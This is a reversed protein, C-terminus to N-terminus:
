LVAAQSRVSTLEAEHAKAAADAKAQTAQVAFDLERQASIKLQELASEARVKDAIAQDFAATRTELEAIRAADTRSKARMWLFIILAGLIFGAIGGVIAYLIM